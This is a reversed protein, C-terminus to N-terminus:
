IAPPPSIRAGQGPARKVHLVSSKLRLFHDDIEINEVAEPYFQGVELLRKKFNFRFSRLAAQQAKRQEDETLNALKAAAGYGSGFQAMLSEWPIQVFPRGKARLLFVRYVLWTYIDMALPSQRLANLYDLRVPVPSTTVENFFDSTLTLSSDWLARDEPRKPNWFLFARRAIILNEMGLDNDKEGTLSIMSSFLRHAQNRLASTYRGDKHMQLKELFEAQSRGLNLVPDKTRVAETCIWALLTRPVSGYPLGVNPKGMISLTVLGNSREFYSEKPDTHPMTAQVLCRAMYGVLGAEKADEYELALSTKIIENIRHGPAKNNRM